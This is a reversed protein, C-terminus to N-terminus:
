IPRAIDRTGHAAYKKKEIYDERIFASMPLTYVSKWYPVQIVTINETGILSEQAYNRYATSYIELYTINTLPLPHLGVYEVYKLDIQEQIEWDM